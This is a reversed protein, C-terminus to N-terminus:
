RNLDIFMRARYTAYNALHSRDSRGAMALNVVALGVESRVRDRNQRTTQDDVARMADDFAGYMVSLDSPGFTRTYM